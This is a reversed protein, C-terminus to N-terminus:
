GEERVRARARRAAEVVHARERGSSPVRGEPRVVVVNHSGKEGRNVKIRNRAKIEKHGIAASKNSTRQVLYSPQSGDLAHLVSRHYSCQRSVTVQEKSDIFLADSAKFRDRQGLTRMTLVHALGNDCNQFPLQGRM